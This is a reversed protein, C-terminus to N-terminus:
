SPLLAAKLSRFLFQLIPDNSAVLDTVPFITGAAVALVADYLHFSCPVAFHVGQVVELLKGLVPDHDLGEVSGPSARGTSLDIGCCQFVTLVFSIFLLTFLLVDISCM